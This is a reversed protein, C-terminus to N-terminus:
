FHLTAAVEIAADSYVIKGGPKRRCNYYWSKAADDNFWIALDGRNILANNYGPWNTVRYKIPDFKHKYPLNHKFPMVIDEM